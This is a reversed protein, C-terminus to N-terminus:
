LQSWTLLTITWFLGTDEREVALKGWSEKEDKSKEGKDEM